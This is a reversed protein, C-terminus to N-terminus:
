LKSLFVNQVIKKFVDVHRHAESDFWPLSDCFIRQSMRSVGDHIVDALLSCQSLWTQTTIRQKKLNVFVGQYLSLLVDSKDVLENIPWLMGFSSLFPLLLFNIQM